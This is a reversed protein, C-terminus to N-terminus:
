TTNNNVLPRLSSSGNPNLVQTPQFLICVPPGIYQSCYLDDGASRGVVYNIENTAGVVNSNNTIRGSYTHATYQPDYEQDLLTTGSSAGSRSSFPYLPIRAFKTFAPVRVRVTTETDTMFLANLLTSARNYLNVLASAGGWALNGDQGNVYVAISGFGSDRRIVYDTSGNVFAFMELMRSNGAYYAARSTIPIPTAGSIASHYNRKFYPTLGFLAFNNSSITSAFYEPIMM